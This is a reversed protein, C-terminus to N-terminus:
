RGPRPGSRGSSLGRAPPAAVPRGLGARDAALRGDHFGAASSARVTTTRIRPFAQAFARDVAAERTALMIGVGSGAGAAGAGAARAATEADARARAAAERLREGIRGAFSLLFAHRFRRPQEWPPVEARLVERVAHLSLAAYLSLVADLDTRHGVVTCRRAAGDARRMAVRCANADAVAGLLVAKAAAYPADALIEETGVADTTRGSAALLAEDIAHRAMLEQAKALLAEAEEPFPSSEAKALLHTIRHIWPDDTTTQSM